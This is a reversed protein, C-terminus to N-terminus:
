IKDFQKETGISIIMYLKKKAQQYPPNCQNIESYQILKAYRFYIGNKM